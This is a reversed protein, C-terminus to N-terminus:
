HVRENWEALADALTVAVGDAQVLAHGHGGYVLVWAASALPSTFYGRITRRPKWAAPWGGDRLALLLGLASQIEGTGPGYGRQLPWLVEAWDGLSNGAEARGDQWLALRGCPLGHLAVVRPEEAAPNM